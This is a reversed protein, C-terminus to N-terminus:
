HVIPETVLSQPEVRADADSRLPEPAPLPTPYVVARLDRGSRNVIAM